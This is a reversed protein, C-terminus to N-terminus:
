VEPSGGPHILAQQRKMDTLIEGLVDWLVDSGESPLGDAELQVIRARHEAILREPDHDTPSSDDTM